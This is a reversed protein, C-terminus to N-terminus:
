AEKELQKLTEMFKEISGKMKVFYEPKGTQDFKIAASLCEDIFQRLKVRDEDSLRTVVKEAKELIDM